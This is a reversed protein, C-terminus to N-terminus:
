QLLRRAQERLSPSVPVGIARAATLDLSVELAVPRARELAVPPVGKLVADVFEAARVALAIWDYDAAVLVGDAIHSGITPIQQAMFHRVLRRRSDPDAIGPAVVIADPARRAVGAAVGDLGGEQGIDLTHMGIGVRAGAAELAKVYDALFGPGGDTVVVIHRAAPVALMALRLHAEGLERASSAVVAVPFARCRGYPDSVGIVLIPVCHALGDTSPYMSTVIVDPAARSLEVLLASVREPFLGSWRRELVLNHGEVYGLERLRHHFTEWVATPQAGLTGVRYVRTADQPVAMAPWLVLAFALAAALPRATMAGAGARREGSLG